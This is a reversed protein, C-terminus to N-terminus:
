RKVEEWKLYKLIAELVMYNISWDKKTPNAARGAEPGAEEVPYLYITQRLNGNQGNGM